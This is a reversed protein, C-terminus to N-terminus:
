LDALNFEQCDGEAFAQAGHGYRDGKACVEYFQSFCYKQPIWNNTKPCSSKAAVFAHTGIGQGNRASFSGQMAYNSNAVIDTKFCFQATASCPGARYTNCKNQCIQQNTLALTASPLSTLATLLLLPYLYM